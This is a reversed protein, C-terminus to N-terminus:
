MKVKTRTARVKHKKKMKKIVTSQAKNTQFQFSKENRQRKKNIDHQRQQQHRQQAAQQQCQQDHALTNNLHERLTAFPDAQFAPHQLVLGMQSIEKALVMRRDNTTATPQSAIVSTNATAATNNTTTTTTTTSAAGISELLANKMENMADMRSPQATPRTRLNLCSLILNERRLYQERKALRKRQGRSLPNSDVDQDVISAHDRIQHTKQLFSTQNTPSSVSSSLTGTSLFTSTSSDKRLSRNTTTEKSSANSRPHRSEGNVSMISAAPSENDNKVIATRRFQGVSVKALKPM